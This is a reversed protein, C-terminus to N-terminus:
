VLIVYSAEGLSPEGHVSGSDGGEDALISTDNKITLPESYGSDGGGEDAYLAPMASSGVMLLMALIIAMHKM